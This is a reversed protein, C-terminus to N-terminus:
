KKKWVTGEAISWQFKRSHERILFPLNKRATLEFSPDLIEKLGDLTSKVSEEGELKFGGLWKSRPTYEELWTYPSTVVLYGGVRVRTMIDCLAQKPEPLRDILNALLILDYDVLDDPLSQADGQTFRTRLPNWHEAVNTEINRVVEGEDAVAYSISGKLRLEEAAEIFRHSFDVGVVEDMFASMEFASRGVACGLDLGRLPRGLANLEKIPALETICRSPYDLAETPGIGHTLIQNATGYHFLLYESVARDTEYFNSM